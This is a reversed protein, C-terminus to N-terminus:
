HSPGISSRVLKEFDEKSLLGKKLVLEKISVGATVSERVLEAVKDYGFLPNLITALAASQMFYHECRGPNATIGQICKKMLICCTNTLLKITKVLNSGVLPMHTNLELQGANCGLQVAHDNGMVQMCAMNVAECISPNIKGPMISSGPEVAPLAIEALGTHPGSTMLRIDNAIKGLDSALARLESSYRALDTLFQTMEVGDEAKRFTLGTDENLHQIILDRFRPSTNIGTGVANGGAGLELLQSGQRQIANSSKELARAFAHFTQGLSVPVADQLHTRGSKIVDSFANGREKLAKMLDGAAGLLGPQLLLCTLRIASPFINNTSQGRNVDDNPHVPSKEGPHGGMKLSALNALVENVNMNSSTGSGAQFVDVVFHESHRGSLVEDCAELIANRKKESLIDLDSNSRACARKLIVMADILELPLKEGSFTFNDRSRASHIGYLARAPLTVSGLADYEIRESQM